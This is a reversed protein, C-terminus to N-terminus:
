IEKLGIYEKELPSEAKELIRVPYARKFLDSMNALSNVEKSRPLTLFLISISIFCWPPLLLLHFWSLGKLSFILVWEM